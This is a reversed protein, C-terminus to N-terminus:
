QQMLQMNHQNSSIVEDIHIVIIKYIILNDQVSVMVLDKIHINEERNNLIILM